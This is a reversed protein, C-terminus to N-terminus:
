IFFSDSSLAKPIVLREKLEEADPGWLEEPAGSRGFAYDWRILVTQSASIKGCNLFFFSSICNSESKHFSPKLM